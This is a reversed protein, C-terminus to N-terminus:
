RWQRGVIFAALSCIFVIEFQQKFQIVWPFNHYFMWSGLFVFFLYIPLVKNKTFFLRLKQAISFLSTQKEYTAHNEDLLRLGVTLQKPTFQYQPKGEYSVIPCKVLQRADIMGYTESLQGDRDRQFILFVLRRGTKNLTQLHTEVDNKNLYYYEGQPSLHMQLCHVDVETNALNMVLYDSRKPHDGILERYRAHSKEDQNIRQLVYGQQLALQEFLLEARRTLRKEINCYDQLSPHEFLRMPKHDFPAQYVVSDAAIENLKVLEDLHEVFVSTLGDQQQTIIHYGM